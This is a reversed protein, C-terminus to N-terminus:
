QCYELPAFPPARIAAAQCPSGQRGHKVRGVGARARGPPAAESRKARGAEGHDLRRESALQITWTHVRTQVEVVGCSVGIVIEGKPEGYRDPKDSWVRFLQVPRRKQPCDVGGQAKVYSAWCGKDAALRSAELENAGVVPEPIRRLERWVSVPPGGIQQFQRSGWTSAWADVRQASKRADKGNLDHDIGYGDINKSIYKAVYGAASGRNRDIDVSTFRYQAAGPEDADVQLAYDRLIQTLQDKQAPPVFLLFHHHPTGDHQPEAIRFGYPHIGQRKLKARARAWQKCLYQQAARPTTGDYKPNRKSTSAIAAHMRSPCTVTYFVGMDGQEKAIEEFGRIRAMLEARRLKPNSVSRDALEKLTYEEGLENVAAMVELLERARTKQSCRREVAEDSAYLGNQRNVHNLKLAIAEWGRAHKRRLNRRWWIPCTLRTVLGLPDATDPLAVGYGQALTTVRLGATDPDLGAVAARCRRAVGDAMTRVADDDSAFITSVGTSSQRVQALWFAAEHRGRQEYLAKYEWALKVAISPLYQEFIRHRWRRDLGYPDEDDKGCEWTIEDAELLRDCKRSAGHLFFPM